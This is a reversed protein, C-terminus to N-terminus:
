AGHRPSILCQALPEYLGHTIGLRRQEQGLRLIVVAESWAFHEPRDKTGLSCGIFGPHVRREAVRRLLAMGIERDATSDRDPLGIHEGEELADQLGGRYRARVPRRLARPRRLCGSVPCSTEVAATM